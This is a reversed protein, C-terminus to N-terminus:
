GIFNNKKHAGDCYPKNASHGCRCLFAKPEKVETTGDVKVVAITGEVMLPGNALVTVKVNTNEM